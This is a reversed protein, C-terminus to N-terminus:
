ETPEAAMMSEDYRPAIRHGPPITLFDKDPWVGDVLNQILSMDGQIKRFKWGKKEAEARAMKEFIDGPEIGMDIYTHTHYNKAKDGLEAIIFEAYEEGFKAILEERSRYMGFQDMGPTEPRPGADHGREFWGSTLFYEGVNNFFYEKYREKNGLFFTICDHARPLVLKTSRAMLGIVGNGCLGYGLAVADYNRDEARDVAAQLRSLLTGKAESHLGQPLFDLDVYNSSRVVAACAERHFIDCCVLRLRM